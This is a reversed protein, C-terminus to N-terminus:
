EDSLSAAKFHEHEEECAGRFAQTQCSKVVSHQVSSCWIETCKSKWDARACLRSGDCGAYNCDLDILPYLETSGIDIDVFLGVKSLWKKSGAPSAYYKNERRSAAVNEQMEADGKADQELHRTLLSIHPIQEYYSASSSSPVNVGVVEVVEFKANFRDWAADETEGVAHSSM